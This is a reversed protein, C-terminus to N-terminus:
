LLSLLTMSSTLLTRAILTRHRSVRWLVLSTAWRLQHPHYHLRRGTLMEWGLLHPLGLCKKVKSIHVIFAKAKVKRQLVFNTPEIKRVLLFPGVYSRQRKSSKRLFALTSIGYGTAWVRTLSAFTSTTRRNGVIPRLACINAPWSMLTHCRSKRKASSNMRPSKDSNM